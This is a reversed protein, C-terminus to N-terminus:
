HCSRSIKLGGFALRMHLNGQKNCRGAVSRSHGAEKMLREKGETYMLGSQSIVTAQYTKLIFYCHTLEWHEM